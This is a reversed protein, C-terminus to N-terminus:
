NVEVAGRGSNLGGQEVGKAACHGRMSQDCTRREVARHFLREAEAEFGWTLMSAPIAFFAISFCATLAVVM